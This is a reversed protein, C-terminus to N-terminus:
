ASGAAILVTNPAQVHPSSGATILDARTWPRDAQLFPNEAAMWTHWFAITADIDGNVGSALDRALGRREAEAFDSQVWILCDILDTLERRGAGVGEVIVMSRDAPVVISGSRRHAEWAPPRYSVAEGRRLPELVGGALLEAWGFMPANWAVDDVHVVASGPVVGALRRALTSKGGGSRGDVAVICPRGPPVEGAHGRVVGALEALSVARWSDVAREGCGPRMM